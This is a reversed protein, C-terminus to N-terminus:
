HAAPAVQQGSLGTRAKLSGCLAKSSVPFIKSCPCCPPLLCLMLRVVPLCAPQLLSLRSYWVSCCTPASTATSALLATSHRWRTSLACDCSCMQWLVGLTSGPVPYFLVYIAESCRMSACIVGATWSKCCWGRAFLDHLVLAVLSVTAGRLTPHIQLGGRGPVSVACCVLM